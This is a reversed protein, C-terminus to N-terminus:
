TFREASTYSGNV